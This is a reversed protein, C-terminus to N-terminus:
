LFEHTPVMRFARSPIGIRAANNRIWPSASELGGEQHLRRSGLGGVIQVAIQFRREGLHSALDVLTNGCDGRNSMMLREGGHSVRDGEGSGSRGGSRGLQEVADSPM